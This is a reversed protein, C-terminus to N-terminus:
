QLVPEVQKFRKRFHRFIGYERQQAACLREAINTIPVTFYVNARHQRVHTYNHGCNGSYKKTIFFIEVIKIIIQRFIRVVTQLM